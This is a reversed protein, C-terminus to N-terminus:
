TIASSSHEQDAVFSMQREERCLYTLGYQIDSWMNFVTLCNLLLSMIHFYLPILFFLDIVNMGDSGVHLPFLILEWSSSSLQGACDWM